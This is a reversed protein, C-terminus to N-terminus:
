RAGLELILEPKELALAALGGNQNQNQNSEASGGPLRFNLVTPLVSPKLQLLEERGNQNQNQNDDCALDGPSVLGIQAAVEEYVEPKLKKKLTSLAQRTDKDSAAM